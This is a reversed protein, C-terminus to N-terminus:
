YISLDLYCLICPHSLTNYSFIVLHFLLPLPPFPSPSNKYFRLALFTHPILVFTSPSSLHFFIRFFSYKCLCSLYCNIFTYYCIYLVAMSFCNKTSTSSATFFVTYQLTHLINLRKSTNKLSTITYFVQHKVLTVYM